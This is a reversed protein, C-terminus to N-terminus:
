AVFSVSVGRGAARAREYVAAAAAVDQLAMGTSDFVIIEEPTRRGPKKGAVIEGLEAHVDERRMRGSDIAPHLDGITACQETIDTVITASALLEADIEQKDDGDAGVAAVFTGPRLSGPFLFPIKSPTCTVVVDSTSVASRLDRATTVRFGLEPALESAFRRARQEVDDFSFAAEIPLTRALARLQSRGQAGCGCITVTKADRRALHKAAVATAAATRLRTIAISDMIALPTGTEADCVVIVGQIRPLGREENEFFNGNVKAAFFGNMIGAKIHFGGDRGPVGLVGPPRAEGSGHQRFAEEVAVFCDDFGLLAEVEVRSLILTTARAAPVPTKYCNISQLTL